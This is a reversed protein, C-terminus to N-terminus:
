CRKNSVLYEVAKRSMIMGGGGTPYAYGWNKYNIGYAYREGLLLSQESDYCALMKQLRLFNMITDDDIILLWKKDRWDSNFISIIKKLKACHGSNTNNVGIFETPISHDTVDSYYRIHKVNGM